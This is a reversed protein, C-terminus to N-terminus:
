PLKVLMRSNWHVSLSATGVEVVQIAAFLTTEDPFKRMAKSDVEIRLAAGLTPAFGTAAFAVPAVVAFYRHYLWMEGDDEDLPTPLSGIGADFAPTHALGIGFAGNFGDGAATAARLELLLEGRTRVITLGELTPQVGAGVLSSGSASLSLAGTGGSGVSWATLRRQSRPRGRHSFGRRQAM